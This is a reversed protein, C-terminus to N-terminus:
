DIDSTDVPTAAKAAAREAAKEAKAAKQAARYRKAFDNLTGKRFLLAPRGRMGTRLNADPLLSDNARAKRLEGESIGTHAAAQEFTLYNQGTKSQHQEVTLTKIDSM